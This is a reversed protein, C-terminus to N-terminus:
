TDVIDSAAPAVFARGHPMALYDYSRMEILRSVTREFEFAERGEKALYLHPPEAAASAIVKVHRDYLTDILTIFRKAEDRRDYDMVPIADIFVTHFREAMALYDAAGLPKECLDAFRFRAV